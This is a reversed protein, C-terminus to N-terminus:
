CTSHRATLMVAGGRIPQIWGLARAILRAAQDFTPSHDLQPKRCGHGTHGHLPAEYSEWRELMRMGMEACINHTVRWCLAESHLLGREVGDQLDVILDSWPREASGFSRGGGPSAPVEPWERVEACLCDIGRRDQLLAWERGLREAEGASPTADEALAQLAVYHRLWFRVRRPSYVPEFLDADAQDDTMATGEGETTRIAATRHVEVLFAPEPRVALLALDGFAGEARGPSVCRTVQLDPM